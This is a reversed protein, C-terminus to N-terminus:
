PQLLGCVLIFHEPLKGDEMWLLKQKLYKTVTLGVNGGISEISYRMKEPFRCERGEPRTCTGPSCNMCSGASLSVSGPFKEELEMLEDTLKRREEWLVSEIIEDLEAKTYERETMEAPFCIKIGTLQLTKYRRWYDEPNFDYPPCSWVKDYNGCKRCCALFTPVDVCAEMYEEVPVAAEYRSITYNYKISKKYESMDTNRKENEEQWAADVTKKRKNDNM